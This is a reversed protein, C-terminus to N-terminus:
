LEDQDDVDSWNLFAFYGVVLDTVGNAGDPNYADLLFGSILAEL